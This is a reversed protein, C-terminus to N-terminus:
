LALEKAAQLFRDFEPVERVPALAESKEIASFDRFGGRCAEKLLSIAIARDSAETKSTISYVCALRYVLSPDRKQTTQKEIIARCRVVERHAEERRGLRALSLARIARGPGYEPAIELLRDAVALAAKDDHLYDALVKLQNQLAPLSRPNKEFALQFDALAAKPESPLYSYGRAIFDGEQEPKLADAAKRDEAAGAVDRLRDRANARLYLVQLRPAENELAATLDSEAERFEAQEMKAIGRDRYAEGYKPDLELARTFAEEAAVPRNLKGFAIGTYFAPRPDEPLFAAVTEYREIARDYLGLKYRCYALLFHGTAHNPQLAIARELPKLAADFRGAAVLAAGDLFYDRSTRSEVSEAVEVARGALVAEFEARQRALLPPPSDDFCGEALQGLFRADAAAGQPDNAKGEEWRAQALLVLLEGVNGALESRKAAPLRQFAAQSQWKPDAPLGYESLLRMAQKMGRTRHKPNVPLTLDLRVAEMGDQLNRARTEAEGAVRKESEGFAYAGTSGVAAVAAALVMAVLLRPNRRRWKGFREPISRDAAFRLPRDALQRELDEHLENATQYRDEPRPALLKGVISEVAASLDANIDRLAPPGKARAAILGDFETLTRSTVPFPHKGTFLEFAMVGLSYLDTRADVKGKGRSQLDLLQEPAMYPITGGVVERSEEFDAHSLNFDLLMPEGTDAILVNAPKLDLHLVGREHAHALGSALQTLIKLVAESNGVLSLATAETSTPPALHTGSEPPLRFGSRSRSGAVSSGKRTALANRTSYGPAAVQRKRYGVLADALTRRGLYPMCIIQVPASEHVSYVPVVNTHQLRAIREPERTPRLTVKLAVERGALAEQKALFVRAFTGHGLEEVIRFGFFADGPQPMAVREAVAQSASTSSRSLNSLPPPTIAPTSISNTFFPLEDLAVTAHQSSEFPHLASPFVPALPM